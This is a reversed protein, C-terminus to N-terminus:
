QNKLAYFILGYFADMIESLSVRHFNSLHEGKLSLLQIIGSSQGWLIIATHVPDIDPRISGDAIGTKLADILIELARHGEEACTAAISNEDQLTMDHSEFYILAEFYKPYESYFQYYAEGIAKTKKLGIQETAAAREFKERLIKFGRLNIALYLDEKNKFYLYLTGKSLEAEKAVDDMTALHRGKSFFVREAADVIDNYRQEKEREKRETIGM